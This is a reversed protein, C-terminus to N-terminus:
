RASSPLINTAPQSCIGKQRSFPSLEPVPLYTNYCFTGIRIRINEESEKGLVTVLCTIHVVSENTREM